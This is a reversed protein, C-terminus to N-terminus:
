PRELKAYSAMLRKVGQGEFAVTVEKDDGVSKSSVVTGPGFIPHIVSEGPEFGPPEPKSPKETKEERQKPSPKNTKREGRNKRERRFHDVQDRRRSLLERRRQRDPMPTGAGTQKTQPTVNGELLHSPIDGLFRSPERVESRGYLTRRFTRVLYLYKRARTMGVYCLRREEEMEGPDDMSRRHPCIGEEMGVIFIADFELGKASHLTLLTVADAEWDLQDVDTSLSVEELFARLASEPAMDDYRETVSFLELINEARESGEETGDRLSLLYGTKELVLHVLESLTREESAEILECLMEGFPLLVNGARTGFPTSDINGERQSIEVLRQLARGMSLGERM